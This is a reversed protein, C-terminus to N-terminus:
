FQRRSDVLITVPGDNEVRVTMHAGFVGAGLPVQEHAVAARLQEFLARGEEAPAAHSFSPRRGKRCDGAVTFNPVLLVSGGIERVSRNMQGQDDPFVRLECVKRAVYAVDETTDGEVAGAFVVLGPGIEAVTHGEVIVQAGATRQVVARM